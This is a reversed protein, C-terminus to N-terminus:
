TIQCQKQVFDKIDGFNRTTTIKPYMKMRIAQINLWIRQFFRMSSRFIRNLQPMDSKSFVIINRSSISVQVGGFSASIFGPLIVPM